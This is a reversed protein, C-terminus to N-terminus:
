RISLAIASSAMTSPRGSGRICTATRPADSAFTPSAMAFSLRVAEANRPMSSGSAIAICRM